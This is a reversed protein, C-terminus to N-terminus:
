DFSIPLVATNMKRNQMHFWKTRNHYKYVDICARGM